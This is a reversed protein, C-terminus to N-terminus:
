VDDKDVGQDDVKDCMEDHGERIFDGDGDGDGFLAM